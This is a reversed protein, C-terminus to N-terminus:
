RRDLHVAHMPAVGDRDAIDRQVIFPFAWHFACQEEMGTMNRWSPTQRPDTAYVIVDEVALRVSLFLLYPSWIPGKNQEEKTRTMRCSRVCQVMTSLPGMPQGRFM